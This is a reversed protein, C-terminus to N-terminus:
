TLFGRRLTLVYDVLVGTVIDMEWTNRNLIKTFEERFEVFNVYTSPIELLPGCTHAIPRTRLGKYKIFTVQIKKGVLIDMGTTFQLFTSLKSM